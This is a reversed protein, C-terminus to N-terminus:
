WKVMSGNVRRVSGDLLKIDVTTRNTSLIECWQVGLKYGLNVWVKM